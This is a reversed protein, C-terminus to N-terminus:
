LFNLFLNLVNSFLHLIAESSMKSCGFDLSGFGHFLATKAAAQFSFLSPAWGVDRLLFSWLWCAEFSFTRHQVDVRIVEESLSVHSLARSLLDSELCVGMPPLCGKLNGLHFTSPVKYILFIIGQFSSPLLNSALTTAELDYNFPRQLMHTCSGPWQIKYKATTALIKGFSDGCPTWLM